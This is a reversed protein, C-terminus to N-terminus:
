AALLSANARLIIIGKFFFLLVCSVEASESVVRVRTICYSIFSTDHVLTIEDSSKRHSPTSSTLSHYM